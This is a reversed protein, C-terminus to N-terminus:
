KVGREELCESVTEGARVGEPIYPLADLWEPDVETRDRVEYASLDPEVGQIRLEEHWHDVAVGRAESRDRALVVLEVEITAFVRYVRLADSVANM